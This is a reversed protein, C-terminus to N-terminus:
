QLPPNHRIPPLAKTMGQQKQFGKNIRAPKMPPHIARRVPDFQPQSTAITTNMPTVAIGMTEGLPDKDTREAPMGLSLQRMGIKGTIRQFAHRLSHQIGFLHAIQRVTEGVNGIRTPRLSAAMTQRDHQGNGGPGEQAAHSAVFGDSFPGGGQSLRRASAKAASPLVSLINDGAGRHEPITQDADFGPGKILRQRGPVLSPSGLVRRQGHVAFGHLVGNIVISVLVMDHTEDAM